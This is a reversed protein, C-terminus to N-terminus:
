PLDSVASQLTQLSRSQYLLDLFGSKVSALTFTALIALDTKNEAVPTRRGQNSSGIGPNTTRGPEMIPQVIVDGRKKHYQHM